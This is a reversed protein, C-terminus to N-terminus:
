FGYIKKVSFSKKRKNDSKEKKPRNSISSEVAPLLNNNNGVNNNNNSKSSSSSDEEQLCKNSNNTQGSGGNDVNSKYDSQDGSNNSKNSDRLAITEKEINSGCSFYDGMNDNDAYELPFNEQKYPYFCLPSHLHKRCTNCSHKPNHPPNPDYCSFNLM